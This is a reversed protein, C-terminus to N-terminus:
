SDTKPVLLVPDGYSCVREWSFYRFGPADADRGPETWGALFRQFIFNGPSYDENVIQVVSSVPPEEMTRRDKLPLYGELTDAPPPQTLAAVEGIGVIANLRRELERETEWKRRRKEVRRARFKDLTSTLHWGLCYRCRYSVLPRDYGNEENIRTAESAAKWTSDYQIKRKCVAMGRNCQWCDEFSVRERHNSEHYEQPTKM